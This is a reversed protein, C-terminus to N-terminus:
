MPSLLRIKVANNVSKVGASRNHVVRFLMDVCWRGEQAGVDTFFLSRVDRLDSIEELRSVAAVKGQLSHKAALDRLIKESRPLGDQIVISQNIRLVNSAVDDPLRIYEYRNGTLEKM